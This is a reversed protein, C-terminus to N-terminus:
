SFFNWDDFWDGINSDFDRLFHDWLMYFWLYIQFGFRTVKGTILGMDFIDEHVKLRQFLLVGADVDDILTFFGMPMTVIFFLVARIAKPLFAALFITDVLMKNILLGEVTAFYNCKYLLDMTLQLFVTTTMGHYPDDKDNWNNPDELVSDSEGRDLEETAWKVVLTSWTQFMQM